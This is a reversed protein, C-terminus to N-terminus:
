NFPLEEDVDEHINMFGDEEEGDDPWENESDENDESQEEDWKELLEIYYKQPKKIKCDIGREKCLKYLEPAKMEEYDPTEDEEEEDPWENEKERTKNKANNRKKPRREEEEDEDDVPYSKDLIKLVASESYAKKGKRFKRKELPVVSYTTNTGSGGKKIEYDRDTITGYTEFMSSLTPVPSCNNVPAVILKVEDNEYDYVSWVYQNRTRMEDDDCYKCDRGFEEQCPVNIKREYNDHFVVAFGEDFENLFRIRYRTGERFYMIKLKNSGANKIERHM